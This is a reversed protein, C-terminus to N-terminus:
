SKQVVELLAAQQVKDTGTEGESAMDALPEPKAVAGCLREVAKHDVM